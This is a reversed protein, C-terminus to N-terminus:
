RSEAEVTRKYHALRKRSREACEHYGEEEYGQILKDWAEVDLKEGRFFAEQLDLEAGVLARHGNGEAYHDDFLVVGALKAAGQRLEAIKPFWPSTRIHNGAAAALTIGPIDQLHSFYLDLTNKSLAKEPYAAILEELIAFVENPTAM